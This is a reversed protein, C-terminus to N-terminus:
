PQTIKGYIKLEMEKYAEHADKENVFSGLYFKKGEKIIKAVYKKKQKCFHVGLYKSTKNPNNLASRVSNDRASVIRLNEVRNNVRDFDIHDVTLMFGQRVHNLFAMAVLQHVRFNRRTKDPLTLDVRLYGGIGVSPSLLKNRHVNKINGLNSAQYKGNFGPIENWIEMRDKNTM